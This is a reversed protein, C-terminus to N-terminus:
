LFILPQFYQGPSFLVNASGVVDVLESRIMDWLYATFRKDPTEMSVM